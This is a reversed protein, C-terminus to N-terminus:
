KNEDMYAQLILVASTVDIKKKDRRDKKKVGGEIMSRLAVNSTNWEDQLAVDIHPFKIKLEKVFQDVHPTNSTWSGDTQTPWGVVFKDVQETKLYNEIFHFIESTQIAILPSAIIRLPDTVALGTRKTGYDVAFLRGM